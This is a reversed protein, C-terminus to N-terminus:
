FLGKERLGTKVAKIPSAFDMGTCEKFTPEQLKLYIM